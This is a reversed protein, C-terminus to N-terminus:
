PGQWASAPALGRAGHQRLSSPRSCVSSMAPARSAVCVSCDVNDDKGEDTSFDTLFQQFRKPDVINIFDCVAQWKTAETFAKIYIDACMRFSVEYMLGINQQSPTEHLWAVSVRHTRSLYRMTPNRGIEAVRVMTQNDEHFMFRQRQPLLTWWLAFSPLGCRRLALDASVVETSFQVTVQSLLRGLRGWWNVHRARRAEAM